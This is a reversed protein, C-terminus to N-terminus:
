DDEDYEEYDELDRAFNTELESVENYLKEIANAAEELQDALRDPQGEEVSKRGKANRRIEARKRLDSIIETYPRM